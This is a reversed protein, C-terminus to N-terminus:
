HLVNSFLFIASFLDFNQGLASQRQRTYFYDVLDDNEADGNLIKISGFSPSGGRFSDGSFISVDFQLPNNTLPLYNTNAPTETSTTIYGDDSIYITDVGGYFTTDFEGIAGTSIPLEGTLSQASTNNFPSFEVLYILHAEPDQLLLRFADAVSNDYSSDMEGIAFESISSASIM